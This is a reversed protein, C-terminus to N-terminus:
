SRISPRPQRSRPWCSWDSRCVIEDLVLYAESVVASVIDPRGGHQGVAVADPRIIEARRGDGPTATVGVDLPGPDRAIEAEVVIGIGEITVVPLRETRQAVPEIGTQHTMPHVGSDAPNAGALNRRDRAQRFGM